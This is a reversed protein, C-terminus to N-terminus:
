IHHHIEFLVYRTLNDSKSLKSIKILSCSKCLSNPTKLKIYYFAPLDETQSYEKKIQDLCYIIIERNKIESKSKSERMRFIFWDIDSKKVGKLRVDVWSSM